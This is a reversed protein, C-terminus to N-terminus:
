YSMTYYLLVQRLRGSLFQCFLPILSVTSTLSPRFYQLISWSLMRCYKQGANLSLRDQFEIKPRRKQHGSLAPKVTNPQMRSGGVFPGAGVFDFSDLSTCYFDTLIVTASSTVDGWHNLIQPPFIELMATFQTLCDHHVSDDIVQQSIDSGNRCVLWLGHTGICDVM